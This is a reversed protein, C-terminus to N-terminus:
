IKGGLWFRATFRAKLLKSWLLIKGNKERWWIVFRTPDPMNSGGGLANKSVGFFLRPHILGM